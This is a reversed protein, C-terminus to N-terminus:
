ESVQFNDEGGSAQEEIYKKITEENVAGVTSCFYGRAWMHQGWYKKKLEPFEDQLLHSSRGKLKKMIVAPSLTTPSSVMLHIHDPRIHGELIEIGNAQCGQRILERCRLAINGRLIPYRYKTIWVFHYKIDAVTHSYRRYDAKAM